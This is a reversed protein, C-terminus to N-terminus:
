NVIQEEIPLKNILDSISM